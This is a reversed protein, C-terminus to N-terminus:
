HAHNWRIISVSIVATMNLPKVLNAITVQCQIRNGYIYIYIYMYLLFALVVSKPM